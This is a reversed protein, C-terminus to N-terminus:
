ISREVIKPVIPLISVARYNKVKASDEEKYVPAIDAPKIKQPFKKIFILEGNWNAALFPKYINFTVKFCKTLIIKFGGVESSTLNANAKEVDTKDVGPFRFTSTITITESIKKVSGHNEYKRILNSLLIVLHIFYIM